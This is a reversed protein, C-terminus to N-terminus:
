QGLSAQEMAIMKEKLPVGDGASFGILRGTSGIVRHCPVILPCVNTRMVGGVARAARPSGVEGALEGYSRTEGYPIQQCARLVDARFRTLGDCAIEVKSFDVVVGNSYDKIMQIVPHILKASFTVRETALFAKAASRDPLAFKVRSIRTDRAVSVACWGLNSKFVTGSVSDMM